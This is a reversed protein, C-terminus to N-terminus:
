KDLNEFLANYDVQFIEALAVIEEVRISYRGNEMASYTSRSVNLGKVQLQAAVQEQTMDQRLRYKRLNKGISLSDQKINQEM